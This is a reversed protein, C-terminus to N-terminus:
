YVTFKCQYIMIYRWDVTWLTDLVWMKWLLTLGDPPVTVMGEDTKWKSDILEYLKQEGYSKMWLTLRFRSPARESVHKGKSGLLIVSLMSLKHCTFHPIFNSIYEWNGIPQVPSTQSHIHLKMGCFYSTFNSVCECVEATAWNFKPIFYYNWGM